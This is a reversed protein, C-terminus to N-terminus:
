SPSENGEEDVFIINGLIMALRILLVDSGVADFYGRCVVNAQAGSAAGTLGKITHKHCLFAGDAKRAGDVVERARAASVIRNKSFLCQDCREACVLLRSYDNPEVVPM